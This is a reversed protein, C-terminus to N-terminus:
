FAEQEKRLQKGCSYCFQHDGPLSELNEPGCTPCIVKDDNKPIISKGLSILKPLYQTGKMSDLVFAILFVALALAVFWGVIISLSYILMLLFSGAVSLFVGFTFM